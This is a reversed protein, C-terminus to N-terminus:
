NELLFDLQKPDAIFNEPIPTGRLEAFQNGQQLNTKFNCKRRIEFITYRSYFM